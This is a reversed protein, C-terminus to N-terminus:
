GMTSASDEPDDRSPTALLRHYTRAKRRTDFSQGQNFESRSAQRYLADYTSCETSLGSGGPIDATNISLQQHSRPVHYDPVHVHPYSQDQPETKMKTYTYQCNDGYELVQAVNSQQQQVNRRFKFPIPGTTSSHHTQPYMCASLSASDRDRTSCPLVTARCGVGSFQFIIKKNCQIEIEM